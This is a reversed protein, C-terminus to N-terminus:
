FMETQQPTQTIDYKIHKKIENIMYEDGYGFYSGCSHVDEGNKEINFWYVEGCLFHDYTKVENTLYEAVKRRLQPTVRTVNYEKRIDELSIYIYGVQGSDWPDSFGTTNMTIGSHDHLYLPLIVNKYRALDKCRQINEDTLDETAKDPYLGSLARFMENGYDYNHKDGLNYRGHFCVMTGLNDWTRPDEAEDQEIEITYDGFTTTEMYPINLEDINLKDHNM